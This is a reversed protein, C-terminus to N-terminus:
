CANLKSMWIYNRGGHINIYMYIYMDTYTHIMTESGYRIVVPCNMLPVLNRKLSIAVRQEKMDKAYRSEERGHHYRRKRELKGPSLHVKPRNRASSM